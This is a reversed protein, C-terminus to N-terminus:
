DIWRGDMDYSAVQRCLAHGRVRPTVALGPYLEDQGGAPELGERQRPVGPDETPAPLNISLYFSLYISIYIYLCDEM